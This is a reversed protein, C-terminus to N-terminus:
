GKAIRVVRALRAHEPTLIPRAHRRRDADSRTTRAAARPENRRRRAIVVLALVITTAVVTIFIPFLEFFLV